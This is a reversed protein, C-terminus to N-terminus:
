TPAATTSFPASPLKLDPAVVARGLMEGITVASCPLRDLLARNSPAGALGAYGEVGARYNASVVVVVTLGARRGLLSSRSRSGTSLSRMWHM